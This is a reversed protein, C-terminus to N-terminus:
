ILDTLEDTTVFQVEPWKKVIEKLLRHLDMLGRDANAQDIYGVYNIRHSSIVAPRKFLFASQIQALCSNVWDKEPKMSPEFFCNRINYRIGNNYEGFFHKVKNYHDFEGTPHLQWRIGQVWEM